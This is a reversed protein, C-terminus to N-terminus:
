EILNRSAPDDEEDSMAARVVQEEVEEPEDPKYPPPEPMDAMYQESTEKKLHWTKIDQQVRPLNDHILVLKRLPCM